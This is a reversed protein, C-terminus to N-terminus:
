PPGEGPPRSRRQEWRAFVMAMAVFAGVPALALVPHITFLYFALVVAALVAFLAVLPWFLVAYMARTLVWVELCGSPQRPPEYM